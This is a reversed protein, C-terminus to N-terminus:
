LSLNVLKNLLLNRPLALIQLTAFDALHVVHRWTADSWFIDLAHERVQANLM